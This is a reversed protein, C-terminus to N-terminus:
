RRPKDRKEKGGDRAAEAPMPREARSSGDTQKRDIAPAIQSVGKAEWEFARMTLGHSSIERAATLVRM